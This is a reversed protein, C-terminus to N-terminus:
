RCGLVMPCCMLCVGTWLGGSVVVVVVVVVVVFILFM